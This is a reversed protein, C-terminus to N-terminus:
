QQISLDCGCVRIDVNVKLFSFDSILSCAFPISTLEAVQQRREKRSNINASAIQGTKSTDRVLVQEAACVM